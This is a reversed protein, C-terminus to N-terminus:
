PADSFGSNYPLMAVGPALFQSEQNRFSSRCDTIQKSCGPYMTITRGQWYSPMVDKLDVKITPDLGIGEEAVQRITLQLGDSQLYGFHFKSNTIDYGAGSFSITCRNPSGDVGATQTVTGFVRQSEIPAKCDGRGYTHLCKTLAPMGLKAQALQARVGAATMTALKATSAVRISTITGYFLSRRSGPNSPSFEEIKVKMIAHKFPLLATTLPPLDVPLTIEVEQPKTGGENSNKPRASMSPVPTFENIGDVIPKDWRVYRVTNTGWEITVLVTYPVSSTHQVAQTLDIQSM